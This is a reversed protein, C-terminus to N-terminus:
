ALGRFEDLSLSFRENVSTHLSEYAEELRQINDESLTMSFGDKLNSLQKPNTAGVVCYRVNPQQAAWALVLAEVSCNLDQAISALESRVWDIITKYAEGMYEHKKRRLDGERWDVEDLAADSLQGREIVQYPNFMIEHEVCFAEISQIERRHIFSFRNQVYDVQAYQTYERLKDLSVNSVGIFRTKGKEKLMALTEITEQLPVDEPVSHAQFFDLYDVGLRIIEAECQHIIFDRKGSRVKNGQGDPGTVCKTAIFYSDRPLARLIQGLQVDVVPYVPATEIYKGGMDIYSRVIEEATKQSVKTFVSSFPFTGLGLECNTDKKM